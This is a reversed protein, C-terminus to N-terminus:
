RSFSSTGVSRQIPTETMANPIAIMPSDNLRTGPQARALHCRPAVVGAPHLHAQRDPGRVRGGPVDLDFPVTVLGDVVQDPDKGLPEAELSAARGKAKTASDRQM